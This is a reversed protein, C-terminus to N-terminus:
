HDSRQAQCGREEKMEVMTKVHLKDVSLISVTRAGWSDVRTMPDKNNGVLNEPM